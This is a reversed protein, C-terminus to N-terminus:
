HLVIQFRVGGTAFADGDGGDFLPQLRTDECSPEMGPVALKPLLVELLEQFLTEILPFFVHLLLAQLSGNDLM